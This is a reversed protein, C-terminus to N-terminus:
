FRGISTKQLGGCAHFTTMLLTHGVFPRKQVPGWVAGWGWQLRHAVVIHLFLKHEVLADLSQQVPPSSAPAPPSSGGVEPELSWREPWQAVGRCALTLPQESVRPGALIRKHYARPLPSIATKPLEGSVGTPPM